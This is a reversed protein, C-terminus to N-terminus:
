GHKPSYTQDSLGSAAVCRNAAPVHVLGAKFLRGTRSAHLVVHAQHIGGIGDEIFFGDDGGGFHGQGVDGGDAGFDGLHDEALLIM